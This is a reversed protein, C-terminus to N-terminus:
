RNLIQNHLAIMNSLNPSYGNRKLCDYYAYDFIDYDGASWNIGIMKLRQSEPSNSAYPVKLPQNAIQLRVLENQPINFDM